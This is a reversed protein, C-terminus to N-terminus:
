SAVRCGSWISSDLCTHACSGIPINSHLYYFNSIDSNIFISPLVIELIMEAAFSLTKLDFYQELFHLSKLRAKISRSEQSKSSQNIRHVSHHSTTM